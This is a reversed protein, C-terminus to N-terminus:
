GCAGHAWLSRVEGSYVCVMWVKVKSVSKWKREKGKMDDVGNCQRVKLFYRLKM